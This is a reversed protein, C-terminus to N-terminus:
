VPQVITPIRLSIATALDQLRRYWRGLENRMVTPFVIQKYSKGDWYTVKINPNLTTKRVIQYQKVNDTKYENLAVVVCNPKLGAKEAAKASETINVGVKPPTTLSALTFRQLGAPFDKKLLRAAEDAYKKNKDAHRLYFGVLPPNNQYREDADKYLQEAKALEGMRDYLDALCCLGAMSYVDACDKAIALAKDKEGQDYLYNVLWTSENSVHVADQAKARGEEYYKRAKEPQKHQVFYYGLHLYDEPNFEAIKKMVEEYKVPDDTDGNACFRM